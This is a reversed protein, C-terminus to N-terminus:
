ENRLIKWPQTSIARYGPLLSAALAVITLLLPVSL